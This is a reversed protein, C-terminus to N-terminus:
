NFLFVKVFIEPWNPVDSYAHALLNLFIQHVHPNSKNVAKLGSNLDRRLLSLM